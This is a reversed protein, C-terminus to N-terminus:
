LNDLFFDTISEQTLSGSGVRTTWVVKEAEIRPDMTEGFRCDLAKVRAKVTRRAEESQKCLGQLAELPAGCYDAIDEENLLEDSVTNWEIRADVPTGCAENLAQVKQAFERQADDQWYKRDFAEDRRTTGDELQRQYQEHVDEAKLALTRAEDLRVSVLADRSFVYLHPRETGAFRELYFFRIERGKWRSYFETLHPTAKSLLVKGDFDDKTGQFYLLYSRGEAPLFPILTVTEGSSASYVKGQGLAAEPRTGRACGLALALVTM